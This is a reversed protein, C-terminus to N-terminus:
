ENGSRIGREREAIINLQNYFERAGAVRALLDTSQRSFQKWPRHYDIRGDRDLQRATAVIEEVEDLSDLRRRILEAVSAHKWFRLPKRVVYVPTTHAESGDACTARAAIWFGNGGPM